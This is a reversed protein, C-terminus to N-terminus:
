GVVESALVLKIGAAEIEPVMERIAQATLPHPHGIAIAKGERKARKMALRIARKIAELDKEPDIFRDNSGFAVGAQRAAQPGVTHPSTHSDVFYLGQKKLIEMLAKMVRPDETAKSGMHNNVGRVYPIEKLDRQLIAQVESKDMGSLVTDKELSYRESEKPEMPLHLMIEAGGRHALLATERAHPTNPIIALTLPRAAEMIERAREMNYGGDDIILALRPIPAVPPGKEKKTEEPLKAAPAPAPPVPRIIKREVPKPLLFLLLALSGIVALSILLYFSLGRKKGRKRAKRKGGRAMEANIRDL